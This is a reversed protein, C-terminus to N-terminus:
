SSRVQNARDFCLTVDKNHVYELERQSSWLSRTRACLPKAQPDLTQQKQVAGKLDAASLMHQKGGSLSRPCRSTRGVRSASPVARRQADCTVLSFASSHVRKQLKSTRTATFHKM